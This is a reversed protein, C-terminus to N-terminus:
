QATVSQVVTGSVAKDYMCYLPTGVPTVAALFAYSKGKGVASSSYCVTLAADHVTFVCILKGEADKIAYSTDKKMTETVCIVGQSSSQSPFQVEALSGYALLTGGNVLIQSGEPVDMPAFANSSSGCLIVTGGDIRIDGGSDLCDGSSRVYLTGGEVSLLVSANVGDNSSVVEVVGNKICM